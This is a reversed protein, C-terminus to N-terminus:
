YVNKCAKEPPEFYNQFKFRIIINFSPALLNFLILVNAPIDMSSALTTNLVRDLM